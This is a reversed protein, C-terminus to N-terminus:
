GAVDWYCIRKLRTRAGLKEYFARAKENAVEAEWRLSFGKAEAIRRIHLMMAKGVGKARYPERVFVDDVAFYFGGKWTSYREFFSVFGATEGAVEAIIAHFQPSPGFGDRRLLDENAEFGDAIGDYVALDRMMTLLMPVDSVVADRIRIGTM